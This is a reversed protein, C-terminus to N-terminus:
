TERFPFAQFTLPFLEDNTTRETTMMMVLLNIKSLKYIMETHKFAATAWKQRKHTKGENVNIISDDALAIAVCKARVGEESL